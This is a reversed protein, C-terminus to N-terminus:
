NQTLYIPYVQKSHCTQTSEQLRRWQLSLQEGRRLANQLSLNVDGTFVVRGTVNDPQFGIIGDFRNAQKEELYVFIQAGNETFLVQPPQSTKAFPLDSILKSIAKFRKESYPAGEAISLYQEMYTQNFSKESRIVLSDIAVYPGQSLEATCNILTDETLLPRINV